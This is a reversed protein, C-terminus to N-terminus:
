NKKFGPVFSRIVRMNEDQAENFFGYYYYILLDVDMKLIDPFTKEMYGVEELSLRQNEVLMMTKLGNARAAKLYKEGYYPLVKTARNGTHPSNEVPYPKGDTGYYDLNEITASIEIVTDNRCAEDFHVITLNPNNAKIEANIESFFRAFDQMYRVFSTDPNDRLALGSHDQWEPVTSKPEDWIIGDIDFKETMKGVRDLFYQKVEPHYFSSLIGHRKRVVPTGDKRLSATHPNHYGFLPPEVPQGATIGAMRSPVAFVKMGRKHSERVIFEINGPNIDIDNETIGICIIDTGLAKMDDLDHIINEPVLTFYGAGFYYAALQRTNNESEKALKSCFLFTFALFLAIASIAIKTKPILMILQNIIIFSRLGILM